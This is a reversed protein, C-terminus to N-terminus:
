AILCELIALLGAKPCSTTDIAPDIASILAILAANRMRRMAAYDTPFGAFPVGNSDLLADLPGARAM